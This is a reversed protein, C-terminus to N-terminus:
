RGPAVHAARLTAWRRYLAGGALLITVGALLVLVGQTQLATNFGADGGNRVIFPAAEIEFVGVKAARHAYGAAGGNDWVETRAGSPTRTIAFSYNLEAGIPVDLRAAFRGDAAVMPTWMLDDRVITGAPRLEEPVLGWGDIGWVLFVESAEASRYRIEQAVPPVAPAPPAAAAADLEILEDALSALQYSGDWGAEAGGRIQFGYDLALGAPLRLLATFADGDREMPTHLLGDHVFTGAPRLEEPALQWGGVGWILDVAGADAPARYRFERRLQPGDAPAAQAQDLQVLATVDLAEDQSPVLQYNGDWLPTIAAGDAASRTQFGYDLPAGAPVRLTALHRDGDPEMPTHMVGKEIITGAPRQEEPLPQWNNIGWVLFVEGAGPLRYRFELSVPEAQAAPAALAPRGAAALLALLILLASLARRTHRM